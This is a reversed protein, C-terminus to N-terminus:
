LTKKTKRNTDTYFIVLKQLNDHFKFHIIKIVHCSEVTPATFISFKAIDFFIKTDVRSTTEYLLSVFNYLWPKINYSKSNM